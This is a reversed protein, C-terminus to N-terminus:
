GMGELLESEELELELQMAVSPWDALEDQHRAGGSKLKRQKATVKKRRWTPRGWGYEGHVPHDLGLDFNFTSTMNTYPSIQLKVM